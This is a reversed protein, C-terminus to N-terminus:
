EDDRRRWEEYRKEMRRIEEGNKTDGRRWEEYRKEM